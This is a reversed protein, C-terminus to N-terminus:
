SQASPSQTTTTTGNKRGASRQFTTTKVWTPGIRSRTTTTSSSRPRRQTLLIQNKRNELTPPIQVPACLRKRRCNTLLQM